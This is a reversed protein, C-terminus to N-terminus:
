PENHGGFEQRIASVFRTSFSQQKLSRKRKMLAHILTHPEVKEKRAIKLSWNGTEGGGIRGVVCKISNGCKKFVNEALETIWSRIVSGNCWVKSVEKMDLKYKSKSLIEYGEGYAELLAYEIGNHITKVFHGAGAEGMYGYGDKVALDKFLPQIKNYIKKDGGVMISAGNRAGTLGGSTGMDLFDIGKKKLEKYHKISDEYYSNGGDIVTDGKSLKKSLEKVVSDVPEGATVMIVITRPKPIKKVFEDYDYSPVIGKHRALKKTPEPSRNYVVVKYKKDILNLVMNEGMKGLGIFGIYKKM